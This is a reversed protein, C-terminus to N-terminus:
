STTEEPTWNSKDHVGSAKRNFSKINGDPLEILAQCSSYCDLAYSREIESFLRELALSLVPLTANKVSLEKEPCSVNKRLLNVEQTILVRVRM